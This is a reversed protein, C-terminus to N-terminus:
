DIMGGKKGGGGGGGGGGGWFRQARAAPLRARRAPVGRSLGRHLVVHLLLEAPHRGGPAPARRPEPLRPQRGRRYKRIEEIRKTAAILERARRISGTSAPTHDAPFQHPPAGRACGGGPDDQRDQPEDDRPRHLRRDARRAQGRHHQPGPQAQGQRRLPPDVTRARHLHPRRLPQPHPWASRFARRRPTVSRPPCGPTPCRCSSTPRPPLKAPSNRGFRHPARSAAASSKSTPVRSISTSSSAPRRPRLSRGARGFATKATVMVEGPEVDRVYSAGILDFACTESCVIPPIGPRRAVASPIRAPGARCYPERTLM